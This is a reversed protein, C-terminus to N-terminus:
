FVSCRVVPLDLDQVIHYYFQSELQLQLDACVTIGHSIGVTKLQWVEDEGSVRAAWDHQIRTM